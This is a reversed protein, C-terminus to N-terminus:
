RRKATTLPRTIPSTHGQDRPGRKSCFRRSTLHSSDFGAGAADYLTRKAVAKSLKIGAPASKIGNRTLRRADAGRIDFSDFRAVTGGLNAEFSTRHAACARVHLLPKLRSLGDQSRRALNLDQRRLGGCRRTFRQQFTGLELRLAHVASLGTGHDRNSHLRTSLNAVGRISPTASAEPWRFAAGLSM